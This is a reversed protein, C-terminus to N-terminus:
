KYCIILNISKEIISSSGYFQCSRIYTEEVDLVTFKNNTPKSVELFETLIEEMRKIEDNIVALYRKAM